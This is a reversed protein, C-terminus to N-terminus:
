CNLNFQLSLLLVLLNLDSKIVRLTLSMEPAAQDNAFFQCSDLILGLVETICINRDFLIHRKLGTDEKHSM